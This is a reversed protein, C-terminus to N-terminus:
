GSDRRTSFLLATTLFYSNVLYSADCLVAVFFERTLVGKVYSMIPKNKQHKKTSIVSPPDLKKDFSSKRYRFDLDDSKSSISDDSEAAQKKKKTGTSGKKASASTKKKPAIKASPSLPDDPDEFVWPRLVNKYFKEFEWVKWQSYVLNQIKRRIPDGRSGYCDRDPNSLLNYLAQTEFLDFKDIGGAHYIDKALQKRVLKPVGAQEKTSVSASSPTASTAATIVTDGDTAGPTTPQRQRRRAASPSTYSYDKKRTKTMALLLTCVVLLNEM